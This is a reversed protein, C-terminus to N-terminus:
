SGYVKFINQKVYAKRNNAIKILNLRKSKKEKYNDDSKSLYSPWFILFLLEVVTFNISAM